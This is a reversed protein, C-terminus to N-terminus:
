VIEEIKKQKYIKINAIDIKTSRRSSLAPSRSNTFISKNRKMLNAIKKDKPVPSPIEMSAQKTNVKMTM